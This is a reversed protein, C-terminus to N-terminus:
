QISDVLLKAFEKSDKPAAKSVADSTIASNIYPVSKLFSDGAGWNNEIRRIAM